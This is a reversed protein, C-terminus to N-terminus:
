ASWCDAMARSSRRCALAAGCMPIPGDGIGGPSLAPMDAAMFRASLVGGAVHAERCLLVEGNWLAPKEAKVRAWHADIRRREAQAFDWGRDSLRLDLGTIPVVRNM